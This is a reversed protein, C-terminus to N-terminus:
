KTLGLKVCQLRRGKQNGSKRNKELLKQYGPGAPIITAWYKKPFPKNWDKGKSKLYKAITIYTDPFWYSNVILAKYM